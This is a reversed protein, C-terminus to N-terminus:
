RSTHNSTSHVKTVTANTQLLGASVCNWDLRNTRADITFVHWWNGSGYVWRPCDKIKYTGVVRDGNYLTVEAQGKALMNGSQTYDHIEYKIKKGWNKNGGMNEFYLTEPGYGQTRDQELTVKATRRWGGGQVRNAWFVHNWGGWRAHTDLDLPQAGWKLVARWQDPAMVPSMAMDAPGGSNMNGAIRINRNVTILGSKKYEFDYEGPAVGALTFYGNSGTNISLAPGGAVLRATVKVGSLFNGSRSNKVGGNVKFAIKQV